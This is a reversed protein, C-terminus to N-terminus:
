LCAPLQGGTVEALETYVEGSARRGCKEDENMVLQRSDAGGKYFALKSTVVEVDHCCRFSGRIHCLHETLM